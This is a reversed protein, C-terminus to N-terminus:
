KYREIQKNTFFYKKYNNRALERGADFVKLLDYRKM